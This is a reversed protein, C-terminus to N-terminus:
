LVQHTQYQCIQIIHWVVLVAVVALVLEEVEVVVVFL